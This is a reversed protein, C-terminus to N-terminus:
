INDIHVMYNPKFSSTNDNHTGSILYGNGPIEPVFKKNLEFLQCFVFGSTFWSLRVSSFGPRVKLKVM